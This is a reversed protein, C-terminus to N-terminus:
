FIFVPQFLFFLVHHVPVHRVHVPVHQGFIVLVCSTGTCTVRFAWFTHKEGMKGYKEM